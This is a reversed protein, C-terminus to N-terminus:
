EDHPLEDNPIYKYGSFISDLTGTKEVKSMLLASFFHHVSFGILLWMVVHHIWRATQAGGFLPLLFKWMSMYSTHASVAYLAFGTLIMILYLTFVAVYTAGALANHGIATPPRRRLFVYFRFTQYMDQFRARSTPIFQRWTAYGKGLFMWVVRAAVALTFAIAAYAHIVKMWGMVFRNTAAGDALLFPDGIYIGTIALVIMSLVITWHTARVVLDWVYVPTRDEAVAHTAHGAHVAPAAAARM